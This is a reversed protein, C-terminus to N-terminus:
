IQKIEKENPNIHIIPLNMNIAKEVIDGTGGLGRAPEGDWVAILIDIKKLMKIGAIYYARESPEDFNLVEKDTAEGLYYKFLDLDNKNTFTKKYNKCPIIVYYSLDEELLMKAFLQDAGVALSTYGVQIDRNKIIKKMENKVWNIIDENGINQHGTIGAIM